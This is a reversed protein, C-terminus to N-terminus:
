RTSRCARPVSTADRPSLPHHPPPAPPPPAASLPSLLLLFHLLPRFVQGAGEFKGTRKNFSAQGVYPSATSGAPNPNEVAALLAKEVAVQGSLNGHRRVDKDAIRVGPAGAAQEELRRHRLPM